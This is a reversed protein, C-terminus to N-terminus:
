DERINWLNIGKVKILCVRMAILGIGLVVAPVIVLGDLVAPVFHFRTVGFTGFVAGAFRDVITYEGIVGLIYAVIIILLMRVMQWKRIDSNSFGVCKLMAVGPTERALDVTMYLTTNLSLIFAIMISLIIKLANITGIIYGFNDEMAEKNTKIVESGYQARLKEIYGTKESKPCELWLDTLRTMTEYAGSYQSGAIANSEGGEMIDFFGTIIFERQVTHKGIMDDDYEELEITLKDGIKLGEKKATFYSMIIENKHVPLKGGKRLPIRENYTDGYMLSISIDEKDDRKIEAETGSMFRVRVPIGQENADKVFEEIAGKYGGGKQYYYDAFDGSMYVYFDYRLNMFNKQYESSFLSSKLNFVTLLVMVALAYTIILFIYKGFSNIINGVALFEPVKLRKATYMNILNMKGFREGSSDGHITETVSIKRIRRMMVAAFTIIAFCMFISVLVAIIYVTYPSGYIMNKCFQWLIYRSLPVGAVVGVIGGIFAFTIYTAAFMWRYKFSDVGIARMMGIEKEEQKIAAVMMYRITILMILILVVSMLLLFYSVVVMVTYDTDTEPSYFFGGCSKILSEEVLSENIKRLNNVGSGKILLKCYRFPNDGKLKEYDVEPIILEEANMRIPTKYIEAIKFSYINGMQTTVQIEDGRSSGTMDAIDLSIAIEGSKLSFPMDADNYLLNMRSSKTTLHFNKHGPFGDESAYTGNVSVESDALEVYEKLEGDEVYSSKEMWNVLAQKKEDFNGAGINCNVVTNAVNSIRDTRKVGTIEMYMLNAAIVSILSASIIFIFLIINLGRREKLDNKLMVFFM